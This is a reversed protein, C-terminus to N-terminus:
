LTDLKSIATPSVKERPSDHSLYNRNAMDRSHKIAIRSLTDNWALRKLGHRKRKENIQAHIRKALDTVEITPQPEEADRRPTLKHAASSL